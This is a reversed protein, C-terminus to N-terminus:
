NCSAKTFIDHVCSWTSSYHRLHHNEEQGSGDSAEKKYVQLDSDANKKCATILGTGAPSSRKNCQNVFISGKGCHKANNKSLSTVKGSEILFGHHPMRAVKKWEQYSGASKPCSRVEVKPKEVVYRVDGKLPVLQEAVCVDGPNFPLPPPLKFAYLITHSTSM